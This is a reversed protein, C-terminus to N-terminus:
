LERISPGGDDRPAPGTTRIMSPSRKVNPPPLPAGGRGEAIVQLWINRAPWSGSRQPSEYPASGQRSGHVLGIGFITGSNHQLRFIIDGHGSAATLLAPVDIDGGGGNHALWHSAEDCWHGVGRDRDVEGIRQITRCQGLYRFAASFNTFTTQAALQVLTASAIRWLSDMQRPSPMRGFLEAVASMPIDEAAEQAELKALQTRLRAIQEATTSM